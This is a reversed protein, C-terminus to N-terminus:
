LRAEGTGEARFSLRQDAVQGLHGHSLRSVQRNERVDHLAGLRLVGGGLASCGLPEGLREAVPVTGDLTDGADAHVYGFGWSELFAMAAPNLNVTEPGDHATLGYGPLAVPSTDRTLQAQAPAPVALGLLVLGVLATGVLLVAIFPARM